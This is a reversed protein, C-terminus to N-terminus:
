SGGWKTNAYLVSVSNTDLPDTKKTSHVCMWECCFMCDLFWLEEINTKEIYGQPQTGESCSWKSISIIVQTEEKEGRGRGQCRQELILGRMTRQESTSDGPLWGALSIVSRCHSQSRSMVCQLVSLLSCVCLERLTSPVVPCCFRLIAICLRVMSPQALLIVFWLHLLQVNQCAILLLFLYKSQPCVSPIFQM